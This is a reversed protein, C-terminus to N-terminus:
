KYPAAFFGTYFYKNGALRISCSSSRDDFVIQSLPTFYTGIVYDDSSAVPIYSLVTSTGEVVNFLPISRICSFNESDNSICYLPPYATSSGVHEISNLYYQAYATIVAVSGKFTKAICLGYESSLNMSKFRFFLADDTQIIEVINSAANDEIVQGSSLDYIGTFNLSGDNRSPWSSSNKIDTVMHFSPADMNKPKVIFGTMTGADVHVCTVGDISKTDSSNTTKYTKTYVRFFLNDGIYCNVYYVYPMMIDDTSAPRDKYWSDDNRGTAPMLRDETSADTVIEVTTFMGSDELVTKIWNLYKLQQTSYIVEQNDYITDRSNPEFTPSYHKVLM